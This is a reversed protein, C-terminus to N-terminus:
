VQAAIGLMDHLARAGNLPQDSVGHFWRRCQSGSPRGVGARVTKFGEGDEVAKVLATKEDSELDRGIALILSASVHDPDRPEIELWLVSRDSDLDVKAIFLTRRHLRPRDIWCWAPVPKLDGGLRWVAREGRQSAREHAEPKLPTWTRISGDAELADLMEATREFRAVGEPRVDADTPVQSILTEAVGTGASPSGTSVEATRETEAPFTTRDPELRFTQERIRPEPVESWVVGEAELPTLDSSLDPGADSVLDLVVGVRTTVRRTPVDATAADEPREPIWRVLEIEPQDQHPWTVHTIELGLYRDGLLPIVRAKLRLTCDSFPLHAALRQNAQHEYFVQAAAMWGRANFAEHLNAILPAHRAAIGDAVDLRWRGDPTIGTGERIVGGLNKLSPYEMTPGRVLDQAVVSCPALFARIVESQPLVLTGGEGRLVTVLTDRHSHPEYISSPIINGLDSAGISEAAPLRAEFIGNVGGVLASPLAFAFDRVDANLRSIPRGGQLVLGLKLSSLSGAQIRAEFREVPHRTNHSRDPAVRAGKIAELLPITRWDPDTVASLSVKLQPDNKSQPHDVFGDIWRVCWLGEPLPPIFTYRFSSM